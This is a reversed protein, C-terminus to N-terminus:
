VSQIWQRLFHFLCFSTTLQYSPLSTFLYCTCISIHQCLYILFFFHWSSIFQFLFFLYYPLQFYFKNFWAFCSYVFCFFSLLLLNCCIILVFDIFLLFLIMHSTTQSNNHCSVHIGAPVTIEVKNM